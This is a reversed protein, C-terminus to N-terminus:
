RGRDGFLIARLSRHRRHTALKWVLRLNVTDDPPLSGARPKTAGVVLRSGATKKGRPRRVNGLKCDAERLAKKARRFPRGRLRPVRCVHTREVYEISNSCASVNGATDIARASFHSTSDDSVTIEIGLSSLEAASSVGAAQGSCSANDFIQVTSFEEASGLIRPHNYNSRSSPTTGSLSPAAPPTHDFVDVAKSVDLRGGTTTRQDLEQNRDVSDLLAERVQTVSASPQMSLLLGAAGSVYAAASSTGELFGYGSSQGLPEACTMSVEDLLVGSSPSPSGGATFRLRIQVQGGTEFASSLVFSRHEFGPEVTHTPEITELPTGNLLFEIQYSDGPSLDV